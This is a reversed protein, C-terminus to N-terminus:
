RLSPSIEKQAPKEVAEDDGDYCHFLRTYEMKEDKNSHFIRNLRALKAKKRASQLEAVRKRKEVNTISKGVVKLRPLPIETQFHYHNDNEIMRPDMPVSYAEIPKRRKFYLISGIAFIGIGVALM